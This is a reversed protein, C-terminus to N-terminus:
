KHYPENNLIKYVRYIQELLMCRFLQHPFTLKSFSIHNKTYNIVEDSLGYSGGIVFVMTSKGNLMNKNIEDKFELTNYIKGNICLLYIIKNTDNIKDISELIRKGEIDKAKLVNAHNEDKLEEEKLEIVNIKTFRSLRKMYEDQMEKLYKEKLKGVTIIHINM